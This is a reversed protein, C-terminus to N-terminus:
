KVMNYIAWLVYKLWVGVIWPVYNMFWLEYMQQNILLLKVEVLILKKDFNLSCLNVHPM